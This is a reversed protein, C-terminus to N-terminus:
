IAAKMASSRAGHRYASLVADFDARSGLAAVRRRFEVAPGLRKAYWMAAKRFM